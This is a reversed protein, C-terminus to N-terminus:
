RDPLNPIRLIAQAQLWAEVRNALETSHLTTRFDWYDDFPTESGPLFAELRMGSSSYSGSGATNVSYGVTPVSGDSQDIWVSIEQGHGAMDLGLISRLSYTSHDKLSEKLMKARDDGLVAGASETLVQVSDSVDSGLEPVVFVLNTAAHPRELWSKSAHNTTFMREAMLRDMLAFHRELENEM